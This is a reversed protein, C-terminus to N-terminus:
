KSLLILFAKFMLFCSSKSLRISLIKGFARNHICYVMWRSLLFSDMAFSNFQNKEINLVSLKELWYKVENESYESKLKKDFRYLNFTALHLDLNIVEDPFLQKLYEAILSKKKNYQFDDNLVSVNSHHWRYNMLYRPINHFEVQTNKSIRIWLDYDEIHMADESYQFKKVLSSQIMVSPHIIPPTFLLSVRIIKNSVPNKIRGNKQNKQDIRRAWTGCIGCKPHKQMYNVQMEFRRRDCIDDADMRAIYRGTCHLFGDNLTQILGKNNNNKFFRIRPDKFTSVIPATQDSSGDDIIILEFKPYTQDLVSQIAEAIFKEANYAPMLVSVLPKASSENM